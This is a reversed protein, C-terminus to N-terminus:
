KLETSEKNTATRRCKKGEMSPKKNKRTWEGRGAEFYIVRTPRLLPRVSGEESERFISRFHFLALFVKTHYRLSHASM